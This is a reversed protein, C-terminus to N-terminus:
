APTSPEIERREAAEEDSIPGLALLSLRDELEHAIIRAEAVDRRVDEHALLVDPRLSALLGYLTRARASLHEIEAVRRARERVIAAARRCGGYIAIKKRLLDADFPKTFYDIGGAEYGKRVFPGDKYVGSVFAIPIEECGVLKKIRSATEFGDIGPMQVDMLIVDFDCGHEELIAIAEAGSTAFALEAESGLATDLALLNARQDDVALVRV